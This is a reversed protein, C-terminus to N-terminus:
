RTVSVRISASVQKGATDTGVATLLASVGDFLREDPVDERPEFHYSLTEGPAVTTPYGYGRIDSANKSESYIKLGGFATVDIEVRGISVPLSGPNVVRVDFPFDYTDGSVHSAVIPNPVVAIDLAGHGPETPTRGPDDSSCRAVALVAVFCFFIMSLARNM